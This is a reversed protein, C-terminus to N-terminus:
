PHQLLSREVSDARDGLQLPARVERKQGFGIFLEPGPKQVPAFIVTRVMDLAHHEEAGNDRLLLVKGQPFRFEKQDAAAIVIDAPDVVAFVVTM